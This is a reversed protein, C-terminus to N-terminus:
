HTPLADGYENKEVLIEESSEKIQYFEIQERHRRRDKKLRNCREIDKEVRHFISCSAFAKVYMKLIHCTFNDTAIFVSFNTIPM